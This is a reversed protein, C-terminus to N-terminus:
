QSRPPPHHLSQPEQMKHPIHLIRRRVEQGSFLFRNLMSRSILIPNTPYESISYTHSVVVSWLKSLSKSIWRQFFSYVLRSFDASLELMLIRWNKQGTSLRAESQVHLVTWTVRACVDSLQSEQRSSSTSPSIQCVKRQFVFPNM